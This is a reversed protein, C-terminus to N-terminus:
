STFFPFLDFQFPCFTPFLELSSAPEAVFVLVLESRLRPVLCQEDWCLGEANAILM